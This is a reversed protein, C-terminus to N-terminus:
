PMRRIILPQAAVTPAAESMTSADVSSVFGSRSAVGSGDNGAAVDEEASGLQGPQIDLPGIQLSSLGKSDRLNLLHERFRLLGEKGAKPM